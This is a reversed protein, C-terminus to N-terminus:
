YNWLTNVKYLLSQLFSIRRFQSRKEPEMGKQIGGDQKERVGRKTRSLIPFLKKSKHQKIYKYIYKYVNKNSNFIFNNM